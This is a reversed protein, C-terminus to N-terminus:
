GLEFFRQKWLKQFIRVNKMSKQLFKRKQPQKIKWQKKLNLKNKTVAAGVSEMFHKLCLVIPINSQIKQSSSLFIRCNIQGSLNM